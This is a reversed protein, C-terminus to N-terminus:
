QRSEELTVLDDSGEVRSTSPLREAVLSALDRDKKPYM